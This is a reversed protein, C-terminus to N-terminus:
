ASGFRMRLSFFSWFPSSFPRKLISTPSCSELIIRYCSRYIYRELTSKCAGLLAWSCCLYECSNRSPRAVPESARLAQRAVKLNPRVPSHAHPLCDVLCKLGPQM